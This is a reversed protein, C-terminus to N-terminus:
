LILLWAEENLGKRIDNLEETATSIDSYDQHFPMEVEEQLLALAFL